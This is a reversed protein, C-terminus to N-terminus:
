PDPPSVSGQSSDVELVACPKLRNGGPAESVGATHGEM